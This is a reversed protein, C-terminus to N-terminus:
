KPTSGLQALGTTEYVSLEVNDDDPAGNYNRLRFLLSWDGSDIESNLLVSNISGGSLGNLKALALGAANDLGRLDDCVAEKPDVWFPLTCSQEDLTCSCLGDIDFGYLLDSQQEDLDVRRIATVIDIDGGGNSMVPPLPPVLHNCAPASGGTGGTGGGGGGGGTGQRYDGNLGSIAACGSPVAAMAVGFLVLASLFRNVM